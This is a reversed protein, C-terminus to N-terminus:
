SAYRKICKQSASAAIGFGPRYPCPSVDRNSNKAPFGPIANKSMKEQSQYFIRNSEGRAALSSMGILLLIDRLRGIGGLRISSGVPPNM